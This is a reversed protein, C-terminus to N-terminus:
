NGSEYWTLSFQITNSTNSNNHIDLIYTTDAKLIWEIEELTDFVNQPSAQGSPIFAQAIQTGGSTYTADYYVEMTQLKSLNRNESVISMETTGASYVTPAEYFYLNYPADTPVVEYNLLHILRDTGSRLEVYVHNGAGVLTYQHFAQYLQGAFSFGRLYPANRFTNSSLGM